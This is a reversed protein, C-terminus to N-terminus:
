KASRLVVPAALIYEDCNQFSNFYKEKNNQFLVYTVYLDLNICQKYIPTLHNLALLLPRSRDPNRQSPDPVFMTADVANPIVSVTEPKIAARLM